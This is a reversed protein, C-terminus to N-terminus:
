LVGGLRRIAVRVTALSAVTPRVTHTHTSRTVLNV